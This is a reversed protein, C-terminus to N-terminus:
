KVNFVQTGRLLGFRTAMGANLEIAYKVPQISSYTPCEARSLCPVVNQNVHSVILNENLWVIDIPFNMDPMWMGRKGVTPYVFLMGRNSPMSDRGSLGQELAAPSTAIEVEFSENSRNTRLTVSTGDSLGSM